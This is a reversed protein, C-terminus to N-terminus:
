TSLENEIQRNIASLVVDNASKDAVISRVSEGGIALLTRCAEIRLTNEDENLVEVLFSVDDETGIDLLEILIAKKNSTIESPYHKKLINNTTPLAIKSLAKIAHLRIKIDNSNLCKVVDDHVHYQQYVEVLKLAFQVVYKNESELWTHMRTLKIANESKLNELLKLQQWEYIPKTLRDLFILGDFGVFSVMAEQAERRVYINSNNTYQLIDNTMNRQGMMYLEYIGKAKVHWRADNMKSKSDKDLSLSEYVQDVTKGSEGKLNKKVKILKNIIFQRYLKKKLYGSLEEPFWEISTSEHSLLDSIWNDLVDNLGSKLLYRRKKVYLFIYIMLVIVLTLIAFVLASLYLHESSITNFFRERGTM